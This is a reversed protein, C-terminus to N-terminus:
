NANLARAGAMRRHLMQGIRTVLVCVTLAAANPLLDAIRANHGIVTSQALEWGVGVGFVLTAALVSRQLGTAILALLYLFAMSAMHPWKTLALLLADLSFDCAIAFPKRGHPARAAWWISAAGFALFPVARLGRRITM